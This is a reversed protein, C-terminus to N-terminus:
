DASSGLWGQKIVENQNVDFIEENSRGFDPM